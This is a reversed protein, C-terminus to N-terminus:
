SDAADLWPIPDSGNVGDQDFVYLTSGEDGRWTEITGLGVHSSGLSHLAAREADTLYVGNPSDDGYRVSYPGVTESVAGSPNLYARRAVNLTIAVAVPAVPDGLDDGAAATVLDSADALAAQARALDVGALSGVPVGLRAEFDPLLEEVPPLAV